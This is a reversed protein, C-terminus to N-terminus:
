MGKFRAEQRAIVVIKLALRSLKHYNRWGRVVPALKEAKTTGDYNSNNVIVKVKKRFAKFNDV